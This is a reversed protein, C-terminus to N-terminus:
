TQKSRGTEIPRSPDASWESWSGSFLKTGPLGAHEMALLNVCASVGSGCYMVTQDARHSGLRRTFLERLTEAPLMTGQETQNLKYYHNDAGPIHGPLRDLPESRGEFREPGRADLLLTGPAGLSAAVDDATDHLGPRPAAEVPSAPRSEEGSRTPRRELM